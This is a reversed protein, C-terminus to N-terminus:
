RRRGPGARRRSTPRRRSRSRAACRRGARISGGRGFGRPRPAAPPASGTTPPASTTGTSRSPRRTPPAAASATPRPGSRAARTCRRPRRIRPRWGASARSRSCCWCPPAGSAGRASRGAWGGPWRMRRPRSARTTPRPRPRDTGGPWCGTACPPSAPRSRRMPAPRASPPRSPRGSGSIPIPRSRNCCTM